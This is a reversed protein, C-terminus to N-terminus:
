ETSGGKWVSETRATGLGTLVAGAFILLTGAWRRAPVQEHLFAAGLLVSLVYGIASVPLVFSLDVRGLLHIRMLTWAILIAIGALVAPELLSVIPGTGEPAHKMGWGLAFNGIPNSIVVAATLLWVKPTLSSASM